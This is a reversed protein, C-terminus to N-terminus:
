LILIMKTEKLFKVNIYLYMCPNINYIYIHTAINIKLAKLHIFFHRHHTIFSTKCLIRVTAKRVFFREQFEQFNNIESEHTAHM